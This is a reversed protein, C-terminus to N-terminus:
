DHWLSTRSNEPVVQVRATLTVHHHMMPRARHQLAVLIYHCLPNMFMAVVSDKIAAHAQWTQSSIPLLKCCFQAAVGGLLLRKHFPEITLSMQCSTTAHHVRNCHCACARASTLVSQHLRRQAAPPQDLIHDSRFHRLLQQLQHALSALRTVAEIALLPGERNVLLDRSQAQHISRAPRNPVLRLASRSLGDRSSTRVQSCNLGHQRSHSLAIRSLLEPKPM